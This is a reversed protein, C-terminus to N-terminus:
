AWTPLSRLITSVPIRDKSCSPCRGLYRILDSKAVMVLSNNDIDEFNRFRDYLQWAMEKKELPIPIPCSSTEQQQGISEIRQSLGDQQLRQSYPSRTERPPPQPLQAKRETLDCTYTSTM